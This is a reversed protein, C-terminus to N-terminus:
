QKQLLSECFFTALIHIPHQPHCLKGQSDYSMQVSKHADIHASVAPYQTLTCETMMYWCASIHIKGETDNQESEQAKLCFYHLITVM